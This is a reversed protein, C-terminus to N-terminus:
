SFFRASAMSAKGNDDVVRTATFNHNPQQSTLNRGGESNAEEVVIPNMNPDLPPGVQSTQSLAQARSAAGVTRCRSRQTHTVHRTYGLRTFVKHCGRCTIHIADM